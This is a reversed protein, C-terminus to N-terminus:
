NPTLRLMKKTRIQRTITPKIAKAVMTKSKTKTKNTLRRSVSVFLAQLDRNLLKEHRTERPIMLVAQWHIRSLVQM